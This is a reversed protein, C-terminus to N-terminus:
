GGCIRSSFFLSRRAPPLAQTGSEWSSRSVTFSAAQASPSPLHAPWTVISSESHDASKFAAGQNRSTVSAQAVAPAYAMHADVLGRRVAESNACAAPCCSSLAPGEM